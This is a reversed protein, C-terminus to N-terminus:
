DKALARAQNKDVWFEGSAKGNVFKEKSYKDIVSNLLGDSGTGQQHVAMDTVRDGYTVADNVGAIRVASASVLLIAITFKM